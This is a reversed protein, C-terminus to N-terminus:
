KPEPPADDAAARARGIAHELDAVLHPWIESEFALAHMPGLKAASAALLAHLEDLVIAEAREALGSGILASTFHPWLGVLASYSLGRVKQLLSAYHGALDLKM